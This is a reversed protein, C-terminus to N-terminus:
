LSHIVHAAVGWIQLEMPDRIPIPEYDPNEPMLFVGEDKILLRKVTLEGNVVAIVISGNKAELSRDVVLMDNDHIGAGIMSCGQVRVFFTAAPHRVYQRNLDIGAELHDDAPSPFGAPIKSAFLPLNLFLPARDYALLPPWLNDSMFYYKAALRNNFRRHRLSLTASNM